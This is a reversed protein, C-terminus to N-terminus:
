NAMLMVMMMVMRQLGDYQNSMVMMMMLVVTMSKVITMM